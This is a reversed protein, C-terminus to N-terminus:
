KTNAILQYARNFKEGNFEKAMEEIINEGYYKYYFWRLWGIDINSGLLGFILGEDVIWWKKMESHISYTAHKTNVIMRLRGIRKIRRQVVHYGLFPLLGCYLALLIFLTIM